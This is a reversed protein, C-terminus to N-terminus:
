AMENLTKVNNSEWCGPTGIIPMATLDNRFVRAQNGSLKLRAEVDNVVVGCSGEIGYGGSLIMVAM